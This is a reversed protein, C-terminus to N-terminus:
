VWVSPADRRVCATTRIPEGSMSPVRWDTLSNRDNVGAAAAVAPSRRTNNESYDELVAIPVFRDNRHLWRM